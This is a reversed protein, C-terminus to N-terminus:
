RAEAELERYLKLFIEQGLILGEEIMKANDKDNAYPRLISFFDEAHICDLEQHVSYHIMDEKRLWGKEIIAKGIVSSIDAFMREIMGIAAVGKLFHSHKCTEQLTSNFLTVAKGPQVHNLKSKGILRRLFEEFTKGHTSTLNGEGHEEWLNKIINVREEYSPISAAVLAMPLTFYIVAYYFQYQTKLFEEKSMEGNLLSTFFSIKRFDNRALLNEVFSDLNM